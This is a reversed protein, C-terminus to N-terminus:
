KSSMIRHHFCEWRVSSVQLAGYDVCTEPRLGDFMDDRGVKGTIGEVLMDGFEWKIDRLDFSLLDQLLLHLTCSQCPAGDDRSPPIVPTLEVWTSAMDTKEQDMRVINWTWCYGEAVVPDVREGVRYHEVAAAVL